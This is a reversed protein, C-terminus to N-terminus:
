TIGDPGRQVYVPQADDDYLKFIVYFSAILFHADVSDPPSYVTTKVMTVVVFPYCIEINEIEAGEIQEKDGEDRSIWEALALHAQKTYIQRWEESLQEEQENSPAPKIDGTAEKIAPEPYDIIDDQILYLITASQILLLVVCTGAIVKLKRSM